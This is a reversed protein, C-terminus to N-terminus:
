IKYVDRNWYVIIVWHGCQESWSFAFVGPNFLIMKMLRSSVHPFNMLGHMYCYSCNHHCKGSIPNWTYDTWDIKGPGQKNLM